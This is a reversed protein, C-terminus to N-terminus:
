VYYNFNINGDIVVGLFKERQRKWIKFCDINAWVTKYKLGAVLLHKDRNLNM